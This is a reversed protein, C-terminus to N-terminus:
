GCPMVPWREKRMRSLWIFVRMDPRGAPIQSMSMCPLFMATYGVGAIFLLSSDDDNVDDDIM